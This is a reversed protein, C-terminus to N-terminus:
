LAGVPWDASPKGRWVWVFYETLPPDCGLERLRTSIQGRHYTSHTVVQLVTDGITPATSGSGLREEAKSLLTDPVCRGLSEEDFGFTDATSKEYFAQAWQALSQADLTDVTPLNTTQGRWVQLFAHQTVHLHYLRNHLAQDTSAAPSSLVTKLILADAWEMHRLLDAVASVLTM